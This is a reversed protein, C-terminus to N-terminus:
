WVIQYWKPNMQGNWPSSNTTQKAPADFTIHDCVIGGDPSLPVQSSIWIVGAIHPNKESAQKDHLLHHSPFRFVCRTLFLGVTNIELTTFASGVTNDMELPSWHVNAKASIVILSGDSAQRLMNMVLFELVKRPLTKWISGQCHPHPSSHGFWSNITAPSLSYPSTNGQEMCHQFKSVYSKIGEVVRCVEYMDFESHLCMHETKIQTKRIKVKNEMSGKDFISPKHLKFNYGWIKTSDKGGSIYSVGLVM